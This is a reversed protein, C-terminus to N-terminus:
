KDMIKRLFDIEKEQREITRLREEALIKWYTENEATQPTIIQEMKMTPKGECLEKLLIPGSRRIFRDGNLEPFRNLIAELSDLGLKVGEPKQARYIRDPHAFGAQTAFQADSLGTYGIADKLVEAFTVKMLFDNPM